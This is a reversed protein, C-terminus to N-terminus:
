DLVKQRSSNGCHPCVEEPSKASQLEEVFGAGLIGTPLAFMGIGLIAIISAFVKGIATVPCMDGYGVTTLTEIAWWMTAPISSFVEPQYPNECHYLISASIILLLIMFASALILEERKSKLVRLILGLSSYYRELKVIRLIRLLRLARLSLLDVGFFPLYFPLIAALDILLMPRMAFGVRGFIPHAYRPDSQCAWLRLLYEVTFVAVSFMEFSYFLGGARANIEPVTDLIAAPVNLFILSLILIDFVRSARDGTKAVEVIEWVHRRLSGWTPHESLTVNEKEDSRGIPRPGRIM